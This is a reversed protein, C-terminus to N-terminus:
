QFFATLVVIKNTHPTPIEENKAPRSQAIVRDPLLHKGVLKLLEEEDTFSRKFQMPHSAAM